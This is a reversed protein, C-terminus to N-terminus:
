FTNRPDRNMPRARGPPVNLGAALQSAAGGGVIPGAAAPPPTSRRARIDDISRDLKRLINKVQNFTEPSTAM